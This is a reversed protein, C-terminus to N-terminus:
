ICSEPPNRECTLTKENFYLEAPCKKEYARGNACHYFLNCNTPHRHFGDPSSCKFENVQDVEIEVQQQQLNVSAPTPQPLKFDYQPCQNSSYDCVKLQANFVLKGPCKFLNPIGNSCIIFYFCNHPHANIGSDLPCTFGDLDYPDRTIM